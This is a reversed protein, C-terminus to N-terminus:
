SQVAVSSLEGASARMNTLYNSFWCLKIHLPIGMFNSFKLSKVLNKTNFKWALCWIKLPNFVQSRPATLLSEFFLRLITLGSIVFFNINTALIVSIQSNFSDSSFFSILQFLELLFLYWHKIKEFFKTPTPFFTIKENQSGLYVCFLFNIM